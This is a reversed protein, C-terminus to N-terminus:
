RGIPGVSLSSVSGGEVGLPALLQPQGLVALVELRDLSIAVEADGVAARVACVGLV